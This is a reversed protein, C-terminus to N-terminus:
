IRKSLLSGPIPNFNDVANSAPSQMQSSQQPLPKSPDFLLLPAPPGRKTPARTVAGAPPANLARFLVAREQHLVYSRALLIHQLWQAGDTADCSFVHHYDSINEFMRMNQVSKVSFIFPKPSKHVRTVTYADFNALTCVVVADKNGQRKSIWLSHERLELWRKTWKGRKYEWEVYGGFTPSSKPIASAALQPALRTPKLMFYNVRTESNWSNYIEMVIEFERIPREEPSLDGKAVIDALVERANTRAGIEVVSFRQMNGIFMRQQMMTEPHGQHGMGSGYDLSAKPHAAAAAPQPLPPLAPASAQAQARASSSSSPQHLSNARQRVKAVYNSPSGLKQILTDARTRPPPAHMSSDHSKRPAERSPRSGSASGSPGNGRPSDFSTMSREPFRPRATDPTSPARYGHARSETAHRRMPPPSTPMANRSPFAFSSPQVPAPASVMETRSPPSSLGSPAQHATPFTEYVPSRQLHPSSDGPFGAPSKTQLTPFATRGTPSTPLSDANARLHLLRATLDDASLKVPVPAKTPKSPASSGPLLSRAAQKLTEKRTRREDKIKNRLSKQASLANPRQGLPVDDSDEDSEDDSTNEETASRSIPGGRRPPRWGDGDGGDGSGFQDTSRSSFDRARSGYGGSRGDNRARDGSWGGGGGSSSGDTGRSPTTVVNLDGNVLKTGSVSWKPDDWPESPFRSALGVKPSAAPIFIKTNALISLSPLSPRSQVINRVRQTFSNSRRREPIDFENEPSSVPVRPPMHSDVSIEGDSDEGGDIWPESDDGFNVLAETRRQHITTDGFLPQPPQQQKGICDEREEPEETIVDSSLAKLWMRSAPSNCQSPPASLNAFPDGELLGFELSDEMSHFDESTSERDDERDTTCASNDRSPRTSRGGGFFQAAPLHLTSSSASRMSNLSLGTPSQPSVSDQTARSRSRSRSQTTLSGRRLSVLGTVREAIALASRRRPRDTRSPRWSGARAPNMGTFKLTDVDHFLELQQDDERVQLRVNCTGAM